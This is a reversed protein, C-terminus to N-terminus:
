FIRASELDLVFGGLWARRSRQAQSGRPRGLGFPAAALVQVRSLM